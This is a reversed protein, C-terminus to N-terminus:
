PAEPPLAVRGRDVEGSRGAAPGSLVSAPLASAEVGVRIVEELELTFEMGRAAQPAEARRIIMEPYMGWETLVAFVIEDKQLRRITAWAEAPREGGNFDSVWGTLVLRDQRAVAHDTVDTGDELAEGGTTTEIKHTVEPFGDVVASLPAIRTESDPIFAVNPM